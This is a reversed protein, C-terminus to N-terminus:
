SQESGFVPFNDEVRDANLKTASEEASAALRAREFGSRLRLKEPAWVNPATVYRVSDGAFFHNNQQIFFFRAAGGSHCM